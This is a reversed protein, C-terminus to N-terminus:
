GSPPTIQTTWHGQRHWGKADVRLFGGRRTGADWDPLVWRVREVGEDDFRHTGPRHTHGHIMTQVDAERMARRVADPNVDMLELPKEGKARVSQARMAAAEAARDAESRALFRAQWTASRLQVRLKQYGVDDTCLADGHALLVPQGFLRILCPDPLLAAGSLTEFSASSGPVPHGLLFDRNGHMAYVRRSPTALAGLVAIMESSAQDPADDGIWAEFLDGLLFLHTVDQAAGTLAETFSRVTAEDHDGAHIDSAFLAVDNRSVDIM